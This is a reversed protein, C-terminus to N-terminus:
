EYLDPPLIDALEILYLDLGGCSDVSMVPSKVKLTGSSTISFSATFRITDESPCDVLLTGNHASAIAHVITLGLGIGKNGDGISPERNFNSFINSGILKNAHECKSQVSIYFKNPGTHLSVKVADDDSTYKVANSILNLVARELNERNVQSYVPTSSPQFIIRNHTLELMSVSKDIIESILNDINRMETNGISNLTSVDSMNRVSRLMLHMNRNLAKLQALLAPSDQITEDPLLAEVGLMASNLPERLAEAAVAYARFETNSYESELCFMHYDGSSTVVTNYLIGSVGVTLMLKGSQFQQYEQQGITILDWVNANLRVDRLKAGHNAYIVRGDKVLFVAQPLQELLSITEQLIDM